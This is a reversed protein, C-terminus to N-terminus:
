REFVECTEFFYILVALGSSRQSQNILGRQSFECMLDFLEDGKKGIKKLRFYEELFGARLREPFDPDTQIEYDLFKKVESAVSLGMVLTQRCNESLENKKMKEDSPIVAFNEEPQFPTVGAMKKTAEELEKFGVNAFGRNLSERAHKEHSIKMNCLIEVSFDIEQKDILTHHTPCLYILNEYSNREEETQMSDYRPADPKEGKVHAAEGILTPSSGSPSEETLTQPCDPFACKNGSRFALLLKTPYSASM